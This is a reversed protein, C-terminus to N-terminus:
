PIATLSGAFYSSEEDATRTNPDLRIVVPYGLVRDYQVDFWDVPGAIAREVVAFLEEVTPTPRGPAAAVPRGSDPDLVAV